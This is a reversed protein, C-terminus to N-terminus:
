HTFAWLVIFSVMVVCGVIGMWQILRRAKTLLEESEELMEKYIQNDTELVGVKCNAEQLRDYLTEKDTPSGATTPMKAFPALVAELSKNNQNTTKTTM